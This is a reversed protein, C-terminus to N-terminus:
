EPEAAHGDPSRAVESESATTIGRPAYDRFSPLALVLIM